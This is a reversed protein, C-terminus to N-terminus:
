EWWALLRLDTMGPYAPPVINNLRTDHRYRKNFSQFMKANGRNDQYVSGLFNFTGNKNMDMAGLSGNVSMLVSQINWDTKTTNDLYIDDWAVFALLDNSNPNTLPNDLYTVQDKFTVTGGAGITIGGAPTDVKGGGTVEINGTTYIVGNSTISSLLVDDYQKTSGQYIDVTGDNNFEIKLTEGGSNYYYGGSVASSIIDSVNNVTTNYIGVEYGGLFKTKANKPPPSIGQGATVKGTFVISSKNQHNVTGNTHIPGYISDGDTWAMGNEDVTYWCYKVLENDSSFYAIVTDRVEEFVAISTVALTDGMSTFTITFTGSNMPINALPGRWSIDQYLHSAAINLGSVAIQHCNTESYYDLYNILANTSLNGTRTNFILLIYSVGMILILIARGGM